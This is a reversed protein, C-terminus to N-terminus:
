VSHGLFELPVRASVGNPASMAEIGTPVYTACTQANPTAM